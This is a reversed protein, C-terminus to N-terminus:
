GNSICHIETLCRNFFFMVCICKCYLKSNIHHYNYLTAPVNWTLDCLIVFTCCHINLM